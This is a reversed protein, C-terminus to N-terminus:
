WKNMEVSSSWSPRFRGDAASAFVLLIRAFDCGGLIFVKFISLGFPIDGLYSTGWRMILNESRFNRNSRAMVPLDIKAHHHCVKEPFTRARELGENSRNIVAVHISAV